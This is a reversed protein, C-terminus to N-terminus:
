ILVTLFGILFGAAIEIIVFTLIIKTIENKVKIKSKIRYYLVGAGIAVILIILSDVSTKNFNQAFYWVTGAVICGGLWRPSTQWWSKKTPAPQQSQQKNEEKEM